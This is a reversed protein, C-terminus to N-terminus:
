DDTFQLNFGCHCCQCAGPLCHHSCPNFLKSQESSCFHCPALVDKVDSHKRESRGGTERATKEGKALIGTCKRMLKGSSEGVRATGAPENVQGAHACPKTIGSSVTAQPM